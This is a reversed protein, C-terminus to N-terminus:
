SNIADDDYIVHTTDRAFHGSLIISKEKPRVAFLRMGANRKREGEKQEGLQQFYKRTVFALGSFDDDCAHHPLFLVFVFFFIYLYNMRSSRRPEDHPVRALTVFTHAAM